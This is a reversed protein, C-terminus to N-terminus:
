CSDISRFMELLERVDREAYVGMGDLGLATVQDKVENVRLWGFEKGYNTLTRSANFMIATDAYDLMPIDSFTDGMAISGALGVVGESVLNKLITAKDGVSAAGGTFKGDEIEFRSGFTAQIPLDALFPGVLMDPSGSIAIVHHSPQVATVLKRPFAFKRVTHEAVMAKVVQNFQEVEVGAVQTIFTRVLRHLYAQYVGENNSAQWRRKHAYVANLPEAPFIHAAVCGDVVKEALSSKFITGDVDLAAFPKTMIGTKGPDALDALVPM